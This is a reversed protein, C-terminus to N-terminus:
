TVGKKGFSYLIAFFPAAGGNRRMKLQKPSLMCSLRESFISFILREEIPPLPMFFRRALTPKARPPLSALGLGDKPLFLSTAVLPSFFALYAGVPVRRPSTHTSISHKNISARPSLYSLSLTFHHYVLACPTVLPCELSHICLLSMFYSKTSLPFCCCRRHVQSVIIELGIM